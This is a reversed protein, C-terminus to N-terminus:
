MHCKQFMDVADVPNDVYKTSLMYGGSTVIKITGNMCKLCIDHPPYYDEYVQNCTNCEFLAM